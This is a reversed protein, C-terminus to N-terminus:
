PFSIILIGQVEEFTIIIPLYSRQMNNATIYTYFSNMEMSSSPMIYFIPVKYQDQWWDDHLLKHIVRTTRQPNGDTSIVLVLKDM